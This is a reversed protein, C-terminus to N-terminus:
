PSAVQVDDSSVTSPTNTTTGPDLDYRDRVASGACAGGDTGSAEGLAGDLLPNGGSFIGWPSECGPVVWAHSMWNDTGNRKYGGQAACEEETLTSDGIVLTGQMCLGAHVHYRDNPGTFGQTPEVEAGMTVYYSLGVVNADPGTGDYLLMEPKDVEFTDDVYDFNMYHAAIGPVYGTTNTYGAAEADAPSPHALAFDRALEIESELTDCDQQSTMATWAQPATHTPTTAVRALWAQYVDDPVEALELVLRAEATEGPATSLAMVRDLDASGRGDDFDAVPTPAPTSAEAPAAAAAGHDHGGSAAAADTSSASALTTTGLVTDYGASTADSWYGAPNFGLDCRNRASAERVTLAPEDAAHHDATEPATLVVSTALLVAVPVAVGAVAVRDSLSRWLEPRLLVAVALLVAALEFATTMQDVTGAAEKEGADGGFPLGATRSVMWALAVTLNVLISTQVVIRRRWALLAGALCVQGWGALLFLVGDLTSEQSHGPVMVLHVAGAAGCLAALVLAPMTPVTDDPPSEERTTPELATM